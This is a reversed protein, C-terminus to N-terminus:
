SSYIFDLVICLKTFYYGFPSLYLNYTSSNRYIYKSLNTLDECNEKTSKSINSKTFFILVLIIM